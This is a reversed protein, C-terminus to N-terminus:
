QRKSLEEKQIEDISCVPPHQVQKWCRKPKKSNNTKKPKEKKPEVVKTLERDGERFSDIMTAFPSMDKLSSSIGALSFLSYIHAVCEKDRATLKYQTVIWAVEKEVHNAQELCTTEESSWRQVLVENVKLEKEVDAVNRSLKLTQLIDREGGLREIEHNLSQVKARALRIQRVAAVAFQHCRQLAVAQVGAVGATRESRTEQNLARIMPGVADDIRQKLSAATARRVTALEVLEDDLAALEQQISRLQQLLARRRSQIVHVKEHTASDLEPPLVFTASADLTPQVEALAHLSRLLSSLEEHQLQVRDFSSKASSPASSSSLLQEHLSDIVQQVRFRRESSRSSLISRIFARLICDLSIDSPLDLLSLSKLCDFLTSSLETSFSFLLCFYSIVSPRLNPVSFSNM